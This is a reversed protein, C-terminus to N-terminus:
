QGCVIMYLDVRKMATTRATRDQMVLANWVVCVGASLRVNGPTAVEDLLLM